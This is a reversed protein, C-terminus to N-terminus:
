FSGKSTLIALEKVSVIFLASSYQNPWLLQITFCFSIGTEILKLNTLKKVLRATKNKEM